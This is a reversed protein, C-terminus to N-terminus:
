DPGGSYLVETERLAILAAIEMLRHSGGASSGWRATVAKPKSAHKM